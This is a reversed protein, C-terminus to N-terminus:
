PFGVLLLTATPYPAPATRRRDTPGAATTGPNGAPSLGDGHTTGSRELAEWRSFYAAPPTAM